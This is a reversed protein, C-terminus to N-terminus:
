KSWAPRFNEPDEHVGIYPYEDKPLDMFEKEVWKGNSDRYRLLALGGRGHNYYEDCSYVKGTKESKYAIQRTWYPPVWGDTRFREYAVDKWADDPESLM